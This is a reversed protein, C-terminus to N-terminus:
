PAFSGFTRLLGDETKVPLEKGIAAVIKSNGV